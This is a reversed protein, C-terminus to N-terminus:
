ATINLWVREAGCGQFLWDPVCGDNSRVGTDAVSLRFAKAAGNCNACSALCDSSAKQAALLAKNLFVVSVCIFFTCELSNSKKEGVM